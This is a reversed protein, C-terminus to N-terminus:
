EREAKFRAVDGDAAWINYQFQDKVIGKAFNLATNFHECAKNIAADPQNVPTTMKAANASIQEAIRLALMESLSPGDMPTHEFSKESM